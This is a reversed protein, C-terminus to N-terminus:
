SRGRWYGPAQRSHAMAVVPLHDEREQYVLNFPFRGLMAFRSDADYMPFLKPTSSIVGVLREVEAEFRAAAQPSRVFYWALADQYEDSAEPHFRLDVM